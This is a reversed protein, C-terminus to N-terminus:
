GAVGGVGPVFSVWGRVRRIRSEEKLGGLMAWWLRARVARWLFEWEIVEVGPGCRSSRRKLVRFASLAGEAAEKAWRRVSIVIKATSRREEIGSEWRRTGISM